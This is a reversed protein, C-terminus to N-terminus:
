SHSTFSNNDIVHMVILMMAAIFLSVGGTVIFSTYDVYSGDFFMDVSFLAFSLIFSLLFRLVTSRTVKTMGWSVFYFAMIFVINDINEFLPRHRVFSSLINFVAIIIVLFALFYLPDKKLLDVIKKMKSVGQAGLKVFFHKLLLRKRSGFVFQKKAM